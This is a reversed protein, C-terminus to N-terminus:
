ILALIWLNSWPWAVLLKVVEPFGFQPLTLIPLIKNQKTITTKFTHKTEVWKCRWKLSPSVRQCEPELREGISKDSFEIQCQIEMNDCMKWTRVAQFRSMQLDFSGQHSTQFSRGHEPQVDWLAAGAEGICYHMHRVHARTQPLIQTEPHIKM